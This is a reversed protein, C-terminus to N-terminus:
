EDGADSDGDDKERLTRWIDGLVKPDSLDLKDQSVNDVPYRRSFSHPGDSLTFKQHWVGDPTLEESEIEVDPVFEDAM